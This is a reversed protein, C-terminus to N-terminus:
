WYSPKANEEMKNFNPLSFCQSDAYGTKHHFGLVISPDPEDLPLAAVQKTRIQKLKYWVSKITYLKPRTQRDTPCYSEFAKIYSTWVQVDPIDWSLVPWTRIHLDDPWPWPWLLLFSRFDRNGCHLVEITWLEPEAFIPGHPKRTARPKRTHSICNHSRWRQWTVPFSWAYSLARMLKRFDQRVFNMKACLTYRLPIHTLKTYSPRRTLTLVFTM